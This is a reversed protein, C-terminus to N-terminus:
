KLAKPPGPDESVPEPKTVFNLGEIVDGEEKSRVEFDIYPPNCSYHLLALQKPDIYARYKGPQIGLYYFEGTSYTLLDETLKLISTDAADNHRIVIRAGGLADEKAEGPRQINVYGEIQGAISLPIEVVAFGNAPPVVSFSQFKPVWSINEVNNASLKFNSVKYPEMGVVTLTGDSNETVSGGSQEFTLHPVKPESADYHGNNNTDLYPIVELGGHRVQQNASFNVIPVFPDVAVSGQFTSNMQVPLYNNNSGSFGFQAFPLNLHIDGSLSFDNKADFNHTGTV